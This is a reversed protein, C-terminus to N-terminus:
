GIRLAVPARGVALSVERSIKIDTYPDGTLLNWAAVPAGAPLTVKATVPRVTAPANQTPDWIPAQNRILVFTGGDAARLPLWTLPPPMTVCGSLSVFGGPGTRPAEQRLLRFLAGIAHAAPKPTGDARFLGFHHEQNPGAPGDHGGDLLEYLYLRSVGAAAAAIWSNIALIAQTEEDVGAWQGPRGPAGLLTHFGMETVMVPKGPMAGLPGSWRSQVIDFLDAPQRGNQPYLHVHAFDCDSAARAYGTFAVLPKARLGGHSAGARLDAMFRVAADTGTRGAYTFGPKIENPGELAQVAGPHAAEFAAIQSLTDDIPRRPGCLMCFGVGTEAVAGYRRIASPEPGIAADRAHRLGLRGVAALVRDLDAYPSSGYGLHMNVGLIDLFASCSLPATKPTPDLRAGLGAAALVSASTTILRRRSTTTIPTM